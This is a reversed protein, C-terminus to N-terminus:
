THQTVSSKLAHVFMNMKITYTCICMLFFIYQFRGSSVAWLARAMPDRCFVSPRKNPHHPQNMDPRLDSQHEM